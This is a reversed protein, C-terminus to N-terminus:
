SIGRKEKKHTNLRPDALLRRIRAPFKVREDKKFASRWKEPVVRLYMVGNYNFNIINHNFTIIM